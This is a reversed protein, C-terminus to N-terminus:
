IEIPFKEKEGDIEGLRLVLNKDTEFISFGVRTYQTSIAQVEVPDNHINPALWENENGNVSLRVYDKTNIQIPQNFDNTIKLNLILFIRGQIAEAKQGKVIIEKRLEVKEIMYKVEAVNEGSEDKLPFKFEKNLDATKSAGMVEVQTSTQDSGKGLGKIIFFTVGSVAVVILFVPIYKKFKRFDYKFKKEQFGGGSAQMIERRNERAERISSFITFLFNKVSSFALKFLRSTKEFYQLLGSLLRSGSYPIQISLEKITM